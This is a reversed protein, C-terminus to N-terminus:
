VPAYNANWREKFPEGKQVLWVEIMNDHVTM